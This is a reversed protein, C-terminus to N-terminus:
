ALRAALLRARGEVAGLEHLGHEQEDGAPAAAGPAANRALNVYLESWLLCVYDYLWSLLRLRRYEDGTPMRGLYGSLLERGLAAELDNGASWGALDWLPDSAHAYEWDLAILSGGRDIVNLPHLDSHCVVPPVAPLEALRALQLQASPRLAAGAGRSAGAAYYDIWAAPPMLRAPTPLALAHIRRAFRAMRAINEPRRVDSPGWSKGAEWRTILIGRQPDCYEVPPALNAAAANELVRAEWARDVGLAYPNASAARLAFVRGGRLVRYTENVLGSRLRHIGPRGSGPVHRVALRRLEDAQM